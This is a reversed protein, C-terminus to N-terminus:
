QRQARTHKRTHAHAHMCETIYTIYDELLRSLELLNRRDKAKGRDRVWELEAQRPRM